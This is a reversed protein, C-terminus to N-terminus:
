RKKLEAYARKAAPSDPYTQILKRWTDRAIDQQQMRYQCSGVGFLAESAQPSNRFRKAFRNGINIVSECNGMRQHSQLLLYMQERADDSGNGGSDAGRLLAIAAAYNGSRYQRLAHDYGGAVPSASDAPAAAGSGSRTATRAAPRRELQRVRTQLSEIQQELRATQIGLKHIQAQMDPEPYPIRAQPPRSQTAPAPSAAMDACANLLFVCFLLAPFKSPM